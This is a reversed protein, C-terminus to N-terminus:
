MPPIPDNRDRTMIVLPGQWPFEAPACIRVDVGGSEVLAALASDTTSWSRGAFYVVLGGPRLLPAAISWTRDVPGVARALACDFVATVSEAFGAVVVVNDLHLQEVAMELFAARTARPEILTVRLDPRAIAVPIGPLGGGSGVDAVERDVTRVCSLARLSDAVHREWIRSADSKAVLGLGIGQEELLSVYADLLRRRAPERLPNAEAM